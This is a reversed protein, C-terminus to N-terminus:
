LVDGVRVETSLTKERDEITASYNVGFYRPRVGFALEYCAGM